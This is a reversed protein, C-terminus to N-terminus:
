KFLLIMFLLVLSFIGIIKQSKDKRFFNGFMIASVRKKDRVFDLDDDTIKTVMDPGYPRFEENDFKCDLQSNISTLNRGTVVGRSTIVYFM